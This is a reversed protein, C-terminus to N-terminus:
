PKGVLIFPAWFAPHAHRKRLSLQAERLAAAIPMGKSTSDHWLSYFEAMFNATSEDNVRWLSVLLSRAGAALFGRVLGMLEDGASILNRGTECGSLTVLEARLRMSYIDRVTLWRDALKLGSGLPTDASFHGHCALHLVRASQAAELLRNVTADNGLIPEHCGLATAVARAEAAILPAAEDAVGMVVSADSLEDDPRAQAAHELLSASPVTVVEHTEILHQRGDWLAGFPVLHMPGHPVVIIQQADGLADRMPAMISTHIAELERLVDAVLRDGRSGETAGRRLARNIQFQFRRVQETLQQATTLRRYVTADDSRVVFALVEDGAMFYELLATNSPLLAQAGALDIPPAYLGAVGRTSALRNELRQLDRERQHLAQRWQDTIRKSDGLSGTGGLQSYLANIEARLRGSQRVIENEGPTTTEHEDPEVLEVAGRVTDLLARSKAQEAGLFARAIATDDNLELVTTVLDHYAGLRNTLYAARFQEAQLSGRVREIQDIASEFDAAAGDVNNQAKRLLGRLHFLDALLPAVDLLKAASMARELENQVTELDGNQLAQKALHYRAIAAEAPRNSLVDLANRTLVYADEVRGMSGALEGRIVDVRARATAHGLEDFAKASAALSTEAQAHRGLQLLVTGMGARARAAELALGCQDLEELAASYGSLADELLGLMAMADAQEALLRALHGRACDSELHRRAREFYYLARELRGQRAALEALNGEVIATALAVDAGELAQLALLYAEEAGAFDNLAVLAEGRNSDLKGVAVPEKILASRARDFHFLAKTPDDRRHYVIGLNADTRAALDAEDNAVFACRAANGEAIADDFRGLEGLAQMSALRSKAEEVPEDSESAISVARRWSNLAQEFQGAYALARARARLARALALQNGVVEALSVVLESAELARNVEVVTLQEAEDGLALLIEAPDGFSQLQTVRRDPATAALTELLAACDPLSANM